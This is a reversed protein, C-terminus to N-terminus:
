RAVDARAPNARGLQHFRRSDFGRKSEELVVKAKAAPDNAGDGGRYFV